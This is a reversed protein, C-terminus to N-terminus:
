PARPQLYFNVALLETPAVGKYLETPALGKYFGDCFLGLGMPAFCLKYRFVFWAGYPRFQYCWVFLVAGYSGFRQLFWRLIFWTGGPRFQYCWVFCSLETPALGKYSTMSFYVLGWQPSVFNTVFFFEAGDPHFVSIIHVSNKAEDVKRV